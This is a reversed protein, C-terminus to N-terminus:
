VRGVIDSKQVGHPDWLTDDNEVGWDFESGTVHEDDSTMIQDFLVKLIDGLPSDTQQDMQVFKDALAQYDPENTQQKIYYGM